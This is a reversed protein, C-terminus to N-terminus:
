YHSFHFNTVRAEDQANDLQGKAVYTKLVSPLPLQNIIGEQCPHHCACAVLGDELNALLVSRARDQLTTYSRRLNHLSMRQNTRTTSAAPFIDGLERTLGEFAQGLCVGDFSSSIAYSQVICHTHFVASPFTTFDCIHQDLNSYKM